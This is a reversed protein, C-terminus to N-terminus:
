ACVGKLRHVREPGVEDQHIYMHWNHVPQMCGFGEERLMWRGFNHSPSNGLGTIVEQPHHLGPARSVNQFIDPWSFQM